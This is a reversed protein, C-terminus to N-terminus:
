LRLHFRCQRAPRQDSAGRIYGGTRPNYIGGGAIGRRPGYAYGYRGYTGRLPNYFAGIGYTVPRPFYIPRIGPRYWPRYYWGTGYVFVGWALFGTLYGMTYGYWVADPETEYIRVYTVNYVPSSPPITYIEEPVAQAVVFPGEPSDGVFWVGDQLVYYKAGVQIVQDNTNVAYSM